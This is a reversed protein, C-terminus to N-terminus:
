IPLSDASVARDNECQAIAALGFATTTALAFGIRSIQKQSCALNVQGQQPGFIVAPYGGHVVKHQSQIVIAEVDYENVQAIVAGVSVDQFFSSVLDEVERVYLQEVCKAERNQELEDPNEFAMSYVQKVAVSVFGGHVTDYRCLQGARRNNQRVHVSQAPAAMEPSFERVVQQSSLAAPDYGNCIADFLIHQLVVPV